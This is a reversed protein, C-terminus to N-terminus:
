IAEAELKQGRPTLENLKRRVPLDAVRDNAPNGDNEFGYAVRFRAIAQATQPGYLPAQPRLPPNAKMVVDLEYHLINMAQEAKRKTVIGAIEDAAIKFYRQFAQVAQVTEADSLPSDDYTLPFTPENVGSLRFGLGNLLNRFEANSYNYAM